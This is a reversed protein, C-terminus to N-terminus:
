ATHGHIVKAPNVEVPESGGKGLAIEINGHDLNHRCRIGSRNSYIHIVRGVVPTITVELALAPGKRGVLVKHHTGPDVSRFTVKHHGITNLHLDRGFRKTKVLYSDRLCAYGRDRKRAHFFHSLVFRYFSHCGPIHGSITYCTVAVEIWVMAGVQTGHGRKGSGAVQIIVIHGPCAQCLAPIGIAHSRM